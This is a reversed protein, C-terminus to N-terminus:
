IVFDFRGIRQGGQMGLDLVLRPDYLRDTANRPHDPFYLQTTLLSGDPREVRFHYHASEARFGAVMGILLRGTEPV